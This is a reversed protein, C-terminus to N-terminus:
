LIVDRFWYIVFKNYFVFIIEFKYLFKKKREIHKEYPIFSLNLM